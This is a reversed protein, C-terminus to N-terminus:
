QLIETEIEDVVVDFGEAFDAAKALVSEALRADASVVAAAVIARDHTNMRGVEAASVPFRNRLGELLPRLRARKAKLSDAGPISLTLTLLAVRASAV